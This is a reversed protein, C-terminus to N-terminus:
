YKLFGLKELIVQFVFKPNGIVYRVFLRRPELLLRFLWEFGSNALWKPCRRVSGSLYDFCAGGALFVHASIQSWNEKIWREQEPMGFGVLLIDPKLENLLAIVMKSEPGKKDFYGHYTGLIKLNSFKKLLNKAAKEAIGPKAGLFYMSLHNLECFAALEWLWDAYTIRGPIHFGLMRAGWVVGAGDCHVIYASNRFGKLWKHKQALNIGHVNTHLILEKRNKDIICKIEQHLEDVTLSTVKSGLIRLDQM